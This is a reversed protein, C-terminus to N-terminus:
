RALEMREVRHVTVVFPQRWRYRRRFGIIGVFKIRSPYKGARRRPYIPTM